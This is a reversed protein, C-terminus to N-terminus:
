DSIVIIEPEKEDCKMSSLSFSNQDGNFVSITEMCDKGELPHELHDRLALRKSLEQQVAQFQQMKTRHMEQTKIIECWASRTSGMAKARLSCWSNKLCLKTLDDAFVRAHFISALKQYSMKEESSRLFTEVEPYMPLEAHPQELSFVPEKITKLHGIHRDLLAYFATLTAPDSSALLWLKNSSIIQKVLLNEEELPASTCIKHSFKELASEDGIWFVWKAIKLVMETTSKMFSIFDREVFQRSLDRCVDFCSTILRMDTSPAPDTERLDLILQCLRRLCMKSFLCSFSLSIPLCGNRYQSKEIQMFIRLFQTINAQLPDSPDQIIVPMERDLLQCLGDIWDVILGMRADYILKSHDSVLELQALNELFSMKTKFNPAIFETERIHWVPFIEQGPIILQDLMFLLSSSQAKILNSLVTKGLDSSTALHWIERSLLLVDVLNNEQVSQNSSTPKRCIKDMLLLILEPDALQFFSSVVAVIVNKIPGPSHLDCSPLARCMQQYLQMCSPIGGFRIRRRLDVILRCQQYSDLRPFLTTFCIVRQASATKPDKECDIVFNAYSDIDTQGLSSISSPNLKPLLYAVRDLIKLAGESCYRDMLHGALCIINALQNSLRVPSIM